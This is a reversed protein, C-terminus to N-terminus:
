NSRVADRTERYERGFAVMGAGSVGVSRRSAAEDDHHPHGRVPPPSVSQVSAASCLAAADSVPGMVQSSTPIAGKPVPRRPRRLLVQGLNEANADRATLPQLGFTSEILKLTSTHEFPGHHVVRDDALNSVVIAPVRFGLQRYDPVLRGDTPTTSDGSHDVDAPNTDDIVRPPPVHEFFGGWEDFTVVLVTNDLYGAGALAHYTDAIFREGLRIDALPHDDASTGNGETDFAPDVFSVNPLLGQAVTDLFSPTAM